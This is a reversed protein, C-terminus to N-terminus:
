VSIYIYIYIYIYINIIYKYVNEILLSLKDCPNDKDNRQVRNQCPHTRRIVELIHYLRAYIIGYTRAQKDCWDQPSPNSLERVRVGEGRHSLPLLYSFNGEESSWVSCSLALYTINRDLFDHTKQHSFHFHSHRLQLYPPQFNDRPFLDSQM